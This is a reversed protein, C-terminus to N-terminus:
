ARTPGKNPWSNSVHITASDDAPRVQRLLGSLMNGLGGLEFRITQPGTGEVLRRQHSEEVARLARDYHESIRRLAEEQQAAIKRAYEDLVSLDDRVTPQAEAVIGAPLDKLLALYGAQDVEVTSIVVDGRKLRVLM